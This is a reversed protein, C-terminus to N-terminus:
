KGYRKLQVCQSSNEISQNASPFDQIELFVRKAQNLITDLCLKYGELYLDALAEMIRTFIVAELSFEDLEKM